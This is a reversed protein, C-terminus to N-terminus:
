PAVVTLASNAVSSDTDANRCHLTWSGSEPVIVDPWEGHGDVADPTFVQSRLTDEGSKEISFYYTVAPSAPYNDADYGTLTNAPVEDCTVFLATQTAVIDDGEYTATVTAM